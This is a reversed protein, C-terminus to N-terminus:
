LTSPNKVYPNCNCRWQSFSLNLLFMIYSSNVRVSVHQSGLGPTVEFPFGRKFWGGPLCQYEEWIALWLILYQSCKKFRTSNKWLLFDTPSKALGPWWSGMTRGDERGQLASTMNWLFIKDPKPPPQFLLLSGTPKQPPLPSSGWTLDQTTYSRTSQSIHLEGATDMCFCAKGPARAQKANM